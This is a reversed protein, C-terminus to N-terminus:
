TFDATTCFRYGDDDKYEHQRRESESYPGYQDRTATLACLGSTQKNEVIDVLEALSVADGYENVIRKDALYLKWAKWSYIGEGNARDLPAFLFQWGISSKGIHVRGDSRGCHSCPDSFAYYNTGM